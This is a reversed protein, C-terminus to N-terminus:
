NPIHNNREKQPFYAERAKEDSIFMIHFAKM